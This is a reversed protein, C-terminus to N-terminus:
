KSFDAKVTHYFDKVTGERPSLLITHLYNKRKKGCLKLVLLGAIQVSPLARTVPVVGCGPAVGCGPVVGGGARLHTYIGAREVFNPGPLARTVPMVPRARDPGAQDPVAQRFFPNVIPRISPVM